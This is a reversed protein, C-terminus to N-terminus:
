MDGATIKAVIQEEDPYGASWLCTAAHNQLADCRSPVSSFESYDKGLWTETGEDYYTFNITIIISPYEYNTDEGGILAAAENMFRFQLVFDVSSPVGPIVFHQYIWYGPISGEQEVVGAHWLADPDWVVEYTGEWGHTDGTITVFFSRPLPRDNRCGRVANVTVASETAFVLRFGVRGEDDIHESTIIQHLAYQTEADLEEPASIDSPTTEWIELVHNWVAVSATLGSALDCIAEVYRGQHSPRFYLTFMVDLVGDTPQLVIDTKGATSWDGSTLTGVNVTLGCPRAYYCYTINENPFGAPTTTCTRGSWRSCDSINFLDFCCTADVGLGCQTGSFSTLCSTWHNTNTEEELIVGIAQVYKQGPTNTNYFQVVIYRPNPGTPWDEPGALLVPDGGDVQYISITGLGSENGAPSESRTEGGATFEAYQNHTADVWDFYIRATQNAALTATVEIYGM